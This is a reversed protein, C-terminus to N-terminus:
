ARPDPEGPRSQDEQEGGMEGAAQADHRELQQGPALALLRRDSKGGAGAQGDRQGEEKLNELLIATAIAAVPTFFRLSAPPVITSRIHRPTSSNATAARSLAAAANGAAASIPSTRMACCYPM